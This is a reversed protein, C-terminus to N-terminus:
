PYRPPSDPSCVSPNSEGSQAVATQRGAAHRQPARWLAQIYAALLAVANISYVAKTLVAEPILPALLTVTTHTSLYNVFPTLLLAAIVWSTRDRAGRRTLTPLLWALPLVLLLVDYTQHYAALLIALTVVLMSPGDLVAASGSTRRLWLAGPLLIAPFAALEWASGLATGLSRSLLALTDVRSYDSLPSTDQHFWFNNFLASEVFASLGGASHVIPVVIVGNIAASVGVALAATRYARLAWLLLLLPLGFTPKTLAIVTGLVALGPHNRLSTLALVTAAIAVISPQGLLLNMLGPRSLVLLGTLLLLRGVAAHVGFYRLSWALMALYLTVTLTYYAVGALRYDLLGFPLHLLLHTPPYLPFHQGVPYAEFIAPTDYPNVGDLLARVPYYVADRFDALAWLADSEYAAGGYLSLCRWTAIALAAALILLGAIRM